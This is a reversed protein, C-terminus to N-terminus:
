VLDYARDGIRHTLNALPDHRSLSSANTPLLRMRRGSEESPRALDGLTNVLAVRTGYLIRVGCGTWRSRLNVRAGGSLLHGSELADIELLVVQTNRPAHNDLVADLKAGLRWGESM